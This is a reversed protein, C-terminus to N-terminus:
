TRRARSGGLDESRLIVAGKDSRQSPLCIMTYIQENQVFTELSDLIRDFRRNKALPYAATIAVHYKRALIQLRKLSETVLVSKSLKTTNGLTADLIQKEVVVLDPQYTYIHLNLNKHSVQKAKLLSLKSWCINERAQLLQLREKVALFEREFATSMINAQAMCFAQKVRHERTERSVYVCSLQKALSHLCIHILTQTLFESEQAAILTLEGRVIGGQLKKDIDTLGSPIKHKHKQAQLREAAIPIRKLSAAFLSLEQARKAPRM